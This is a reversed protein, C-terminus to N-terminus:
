LKTAREDHIGQLCGALMDKPTIYGPATNLRVNYYRKTYGAVLLRADELSMPTGPRICEAKLPKPWRKIKRSSQSLLAFNKVPTRGSFRVRWYRDVLVEQL